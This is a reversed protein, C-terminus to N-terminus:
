PRAPDHTWLYTLADGDPDTVMGSLTATDGEPIIRDDGADVAPPTNIHVITIEVRDSATANHNDTVSLTLTIPINAAVDPAAFTANLASQDAFTIPLTPHDHTWLYTITDGADPDAATGNLTVTQGEPITQNPGADVVPPVTPPTTLM